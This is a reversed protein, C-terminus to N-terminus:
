AAEIYGGLNASLIQGDKREQSDILADLRASQRKKQVRDLHDPVLTQTGVVESVQEAVRELRRDGGRMEDEPSHEVPKGLEDDAQGVRAAGKRPEHAPEVPAPFLAGIQLVDLARRDLVQPAEIVVRDAIGVVDQFIQDLYDAGVPHQHPAVIAKGDGILLRYLDDDIVRGEACLGLSADDLRVCAAQELKSAPCPWGSDALIDEIGRFPIAPVRVRMSFYAASRTCSRGSATRRTVRSRGSTALAKLVPAASSSHSSKSRKRPSCRYRHTTMVPAPSLASMRAARGNEESSACAQPRTFLSQSDPLSTCSASPAASRIAESAGSATRCAFRAIRWPRCM